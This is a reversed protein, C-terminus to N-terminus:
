ALRAALVATRRGRGAEDRWRRVIEIRDYETRRAATTLVVYARGDRGVRFSGAPASWGERGCVVEYVARDGPPLGRVWLRVATGGPVAELQARARAERLGAVPQLGVAYAPRREPEGEGLVVAVVAVAAAAAALAGLLAARGRRGLGLRLWRRRRRRSGRERAVRDLLAEETAIALPPPHAPDITAARDLLGPLPALAAHEAACRPCSAIHARVADAEDPELARLVHAGLLPRIEECGRV